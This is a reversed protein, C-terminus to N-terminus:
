YAKCSAPNTSAPHTRPSAAENELGESGHKDVVDCYEPHGNSLGDDVIDPLSEPGMSDDEIVCAPFQRM